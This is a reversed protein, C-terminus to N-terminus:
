RLRCPCESTARCRIRVVKPRKAVNITLQDAKLRCGQGTRKMVIQSGPQTSAYKTRRDACVVCLRNKEPEIIAHEDPFGIRCQYSRRDKEFEGAEVAHAEHLLGQGVGRRVTESKVSDEAVM